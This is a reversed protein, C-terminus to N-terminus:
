YRGRVAREQLETTIANEMDELTKPPGQYALCGAV